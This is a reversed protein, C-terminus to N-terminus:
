VYTIDFGASKKLRNMIAVGIGKEEFAESLILDVDIADFSRLVEFLNR